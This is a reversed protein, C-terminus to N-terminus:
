KMINNIIARGVIKGKSLEDFVQNIESLNATRGVHTKVKGEIALQVLEKMDEVTGTLSGTIHLNNMILQFPTLAM